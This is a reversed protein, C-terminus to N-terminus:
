PSTVTPQSTAIPVLKFRAEVPEGKLQIEGKEVFQKPFNYDVKRKKEAGPGGAAPQMDNDSIYLLIQYEQQEFFEKAEATASINVVAVEQPNLLEVTYKGILNPSLVFGVTPKKISYEPQNKETAALKVKVATTSSRTQGDPLEIYTTKSIASQKAQNIEAATLKIKANGTWDEPVLITINSPEITEFKRLTGSEDICEVKLQKEVLKKVQVDLRTPECSKVSLGLQKILQSKRFFESLNLSHLGAEQLEGGSISQPNLFFEFVLRNDRQEKQAKDIKSSSGELVIKNVAAITKNNISIWLSPDTSTDVKIIANIVTFEETKARDAWVWILITLVAVVLIKGPSIKKTM